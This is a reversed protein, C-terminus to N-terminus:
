DFEPTESVDVPVWILNVLAVGVSSASPPGQIGPNNIASVEACLHARYSATVPLNTGAVTGSFRDSSGPTTGVTVCYGSVCREPDSVPAWAFTM